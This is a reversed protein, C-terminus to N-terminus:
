GGMRSKLGESLGMIVLPTSAGLNVAAIKNHVDYLYSPLLGAIFAIMLRSIWFGYTYYRRPLKPNRPTFVNYYALIEVAISGGLGCYFMESLFVEPVAM